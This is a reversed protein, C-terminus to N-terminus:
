RGQGNENTVDRGAGGRPNTSTNGTGNDRGVNQNSNQPGAGNSTGTSPPSAHGHAGHGPDVPGDPNNTSHHTSDTGRAAPHSATGPSPDAVVSTGHESVQSQTSGSESTVPSTAHSSQNRTVTNEHVGPRVATDTADSATADTAANSTAGESAAARSGSVEATAPASSATASVEDSAEATSTVDDEMGPSSDTAPEPYAFLEGQGPSVSGPGPQPLDNEDTGASTDASAILGTDPGPAPSLQADSTMSPDGAWASDSTSSASPPMAMAGAGAGTNTGAADRTAADQTPPTPPTSTMSNTDGSGNTSGATTSDDNSNTNWDPTESTAGHHSSPWRMSAGSPHGAVAPHPNPRDLGAHSATQEMRGVLSNAASQAASLGAAVLALPTPGGAAAAKGIGATGAGSKGARAGVASMTRSESDAAFKNPSAGSPGAAALDATRGAALGIAAALGSGGGVTVQAFTFFRAIAPWALVSLLLIMMGGLLTGLDDAQGTVGFGIAFVLAIIPKLIILQITASVLKPWWSRTAESIQGAGAIPSTGILIAIAANSLLLEFWLVLTLIIGILAMILLLSAQQGPTQFSFVKALKEQLGDIDGFSANIIWATLDNSAMLAASTVTLTAIFSLLAKGLGALGYALPAGEHTIATRAVQWLFLGAGVVIAIGLSIAYVGRVGASLPNMDPFATFAKAFAELLSTAAEAFSKCVSEWASSAVGGVLGGAADTVCDVPDLICPM